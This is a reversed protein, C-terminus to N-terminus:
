LTGDATAEVVDSLFVLDISRVLDFDDFVAAFAAFVGGM